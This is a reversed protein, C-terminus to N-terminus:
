GVATGRGGRGRRPAPSCRRRRPTATFMRRAADFELPGGLRQAIVGLLFVQTLPGSVGFPSRSEEKGQCALVFNTAHDSFGGSIKPLTPALEQMRDEPIIRLTDGHTGGKFM